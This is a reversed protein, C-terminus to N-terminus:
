SLRLRRRIKGALTWFTRDAAPRLFPRAFEHVTGEEHFLGYFGRRSTTGFRGTPNREDRSAHESVIEDELQMTRNLWVHSSRADDAAEDVTEDVAGRAALRLREVIREGNWTLRAGSPM